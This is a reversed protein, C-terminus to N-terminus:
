FESTEQPAGMIQALMQQLAEQDPGVFPPAAPVAALSELLRETMSGPAPPLHAARGLSHLALVKQRSTM